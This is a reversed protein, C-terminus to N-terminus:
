LFGGIMPGEALIQGEFTTSLVNVAAVFATTLGLEEEDGVFALFKRAIKTTEAVAALGLM